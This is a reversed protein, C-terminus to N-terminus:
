SLKLIKSLFLVNSMFSSANIVKAAVGIENFGQDSKKELHYFLHIM